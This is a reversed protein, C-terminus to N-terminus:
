DGFLGKWFYSNELGEWLGEGVDGLINDVGLDKGLTLGGRIMNQLAANQGSMLAALTTANRGRQEALKAQLEVERPGYQSRRGSAADRRDLEQRLAKAYSSDQGFDGLLNNYLQKNSEQARNNTYVSALGSLVNGINKGGVTKAAGGLVSALTGPSGMGTASGGLTAGGLAYPSSAAGGGASVGGLTLGPGSTTSGLAPLASGSAAGASSSVPFSTAGGMNGLEFPVGTNSATAAGGWTSPQLPNMAGPLFGLAQGLIGGTGAAVIGMIANELLDGGAPSIPKSMGLINGDGDKLAKVTKGGGYGLEDVSLGSLAKKAADSLNWQDAVYSDNEYRGPVYGLDAEALGLSQLAGPSQQVFMPLMSALSNEGSGGWSPDYRFTQQAGGLKSPDFKNGWSEYDWFNTAM